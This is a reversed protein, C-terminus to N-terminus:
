SQLLYEDWTIPAFKDVGNHKLYQIGAPSLKGLHECDVLWDVPKLLLAVVFNSSTFNNGNERFFSPDSLDINGYGPSHTIMLGKFTAHDQTQWFIIPHIAGEKKFRANAKFIDGIDM